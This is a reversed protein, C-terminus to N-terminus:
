VFTADIEKILGGPVEFSETVEATKLKVGFLGTDLWYHADVHTGNTTVTLDHIATIIRYQPGFELQFRLDAASFGTPVGNEVRHADPAFPVNAANHSLLAAIYARAASEAPSVDAHATGPVVALGALAAIALSKRIM